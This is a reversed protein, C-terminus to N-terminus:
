DRNELHSNTKQRNLKIMKKKNWKAWIVLMVPLIFVSVVMSYIITIAIIKM